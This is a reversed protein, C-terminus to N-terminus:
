VRRLARLGRGRAVLRGNHLIGAGLALCNSSGWGNTTHGYPCVTRLTGTLAYLSKSGGGCGVVLLRERRWAPVGFLAACLPVFAVFLFIEWAYWPLGGGRESRAQADDSSM